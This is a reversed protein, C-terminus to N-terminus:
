REVGRVRWRARENDTMLAWAVWPDGDCQDVRYPFVYGTWGPEWLEDVGAGRQVLQVEEDARVAACGVAVEVGDRWKRLEAADFVIPVGLERARERVPADLGYVPCLVVDARALLPDADRADTLVLPCISLSRLIEADDPDCLGYLFVGSTM